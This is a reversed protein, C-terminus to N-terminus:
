TLAFPLLDFNWRKGAWLSLPGAVCWSLKPIADSVINTDPLSQMADQTGGGLAISLCVVFVFCEACRRVYHYVPPGPIRGPVFDEHYTYGSETKLGTGYVVEVPVQPAPFTELTPHLAAATHSAWHSNDGVWQLTSHRNTETPLRGHAALPPCTHACASNTLPSAWSLKLPGVPCGCGRHPGAPQFFISTPQGGGTPTGAVNLFGKISGCGRIRFTHHAVRVRRM